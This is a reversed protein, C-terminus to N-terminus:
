MMISQDETPKSFGRLPEVVYMNVYDARQWVKVTKFIQQGANIPERTLGFSYRKYVYFGFRDGLSEEAPSYSTKPGEGCDSRICTGLEFGSQPVIQTVLKAIDPITCRAVM